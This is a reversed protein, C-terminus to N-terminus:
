YSTEDFLTTKKMHIVLKILLGIKFSYNLEAETTTMM